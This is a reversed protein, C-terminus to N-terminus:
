QTTNIYEKKQFPITQSKLLWQIYSIVYHVLLESQLSLAIALTQNLNGSLTLLGQFVRHLQRNDSSQGIVSDLEGKQKNQRQHANLSTGAKSM